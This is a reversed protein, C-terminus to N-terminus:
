RFRGNALQYSIRFTIRRDTLPGNLGRFENDFIDIEGNRNLYSFMLSTTFKRSLKRALEISYENSIQTGLDGARDQEVKSFTHGFELVSKKSIDFALSTRLSYNDILREVELEETQSRQGIISFVTRRRTVATQATLSKRIVIRDNIDVGQVNIPVIFQEDGLEPELSDSLTCESLDVVGEECLLLGPETVSILQSQSNVTENYRISSRWNRLNHNFRFSAADGYFRRTYEGQVNTRNTLAWAFQLSVFDNEEDELGSRAETKSRNYAIEVFREQGLQYILGLGASYFENLGDIESDTETKIENNEYFGNIALAINKYLNIDVSANLSQSIFDQRSQRKLETASGTLNVRVGTVDTGSTLTFSTGFSENDFFSNVPTTDEIDREFESKSYRSQLTLGFYDGRPLNLNASIASANLKGLNDSNLLFDDVDFSEIRDSLYRQSGNANLSFLTDVIQYRGSYNYEAYNQSVSEDNLDRRIHNNSARGQLSLKPGAYNVFLYPVIVQNNVDFQADDEETTVEQKVLDTDVGVSYTVQGANVESSLFIHLSILALIGSRDIKKMNGELM